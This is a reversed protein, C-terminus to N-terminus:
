GPAPVAAAATAAMIAVSFATTDARMDGIGGHSGYVHSGSGSSSSRPKGGLNDDDADGSCGHLGLSSAILVLSISKTLRDM